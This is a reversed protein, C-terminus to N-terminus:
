SRPGVSGVRANGTILAGGVLGGAVGTVGSSAGAVMVGLTETEEGGGIAGMGGNEISVDDQMASVPVVPWKMVMWEGLKM